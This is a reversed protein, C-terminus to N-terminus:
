IKTPAHIDIYVNVTENWKDQIPVYFKGISIEMCM